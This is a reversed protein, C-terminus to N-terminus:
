AVSGSTCRTVQLCKDQLAEQLGAMRARMELVEAQLGRLEQGQRANAERQEKNSIKLADRLQQAQPLTPPLPLTRACARM